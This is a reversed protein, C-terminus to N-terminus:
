KTHQLCKGLRYINRFTYYNWATKIHIEKIELSITKVNM